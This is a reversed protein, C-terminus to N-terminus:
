NTKHEMGEYYPEIAIARSM